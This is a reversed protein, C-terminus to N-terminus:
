RWRRWGFGFDHVRDYAYRRGDHDHDYRRYDRQYRREMRRELRDMLRDVRDFEDDVHRNRLYRLSYAADRYADVLKRYDKRVHRLDYPHREVKRAFKRAREALRELRKIAKREARHPHHTYEVATCHVDYTAAQLKKAIRVLRDDDRHERHEARAGTALLFATSLAILTIPKM